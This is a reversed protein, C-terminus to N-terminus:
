LPIGNGQSGVEEQDRNKEKGSSSHSTDPAQTFIGSIRAVWVGTEKARGQHSPELVPTADLNMERVLTTEAAGNAFAGPESGSGGGVLVDGTGKRKKAIAFGGAASM